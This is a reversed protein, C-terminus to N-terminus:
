LHEGIHGFNIVAPKFFSYLYFLSLKESESKKPIM